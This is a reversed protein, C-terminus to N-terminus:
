RAPRSYSQALANRLNGRLRGSGRTGLRLKYAGAFRYPSCGDGPRHALMRRWRRSTRWFFRNVGPYVRHRLLVLAAILGIYISTSLGCVTRSLMDRGMWDTGFLHSLSPGMGKRSFDTRVASDHLVPGLAVIILLAACCILISLLLARRGSLISSCRGDHLLDDSREPIARSFSDRM